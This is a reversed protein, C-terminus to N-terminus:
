MWTFRTILVQKFALWCSLTSAFSPTAQVHSLLSLLRTILIRSGTWTNLSTKSSGSLKKGFNWMKQDSCPSWNKFISLLRRPVREFACKITSVTALISASLDPRSNKLPKRVTAKWLPRGSPSNNTQTSSTKATCIKCFRTSGARDVM